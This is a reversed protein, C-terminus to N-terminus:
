ENHTVCIYKIFIFYFFCLFSYFFAAPQECVQMHHGVAHVCETSPPPHWVRATPAVKLGRAGDQSPGQAHCALDMVCTYGSLLDGNVVNLKNFESLVSCTSQELTSTLVLVCTPCPCIVLKKLSSAVHPRTVILLVNLMYHNHCNSLLPFLSYIIHYLTLQVAQGGEHHPGSASRAPRHQQSRPHPVIIPSRASVYDSLWALLICDQVLPVGPDQQLAPSAQRFSSQSTELKFAVTM